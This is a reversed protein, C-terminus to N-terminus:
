KVKTRVRDWRKIQWTTHARAIQNGDRDSVLTEMVISHSEASELPKLVRDQLEANSLATEAIIDQKAQYMYDVDLKSMILRYRAPDLRSLLLLGASFEAVTAIACAHIGRIHNHNSRRYTAATRVREEALEVIFFGHPRNFPVIRSMMFNLVRLWGKSHRARALLKPLLDFGNM